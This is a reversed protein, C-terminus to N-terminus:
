FMHALYVPAFHAIEVVSAGALRGGTALLSLVGHAPVFAAHLMQAMASGYLEADAHLFASLRAPLEGALRAAVGSDLRGSAVQRVRLLVETVSVSGITGSSLFAALKPLM